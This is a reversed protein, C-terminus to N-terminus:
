NLQKTLLKIQKKILIWYNISEINNMTGNRHLADITKECFLVANKAGFEDLLEKAETKM